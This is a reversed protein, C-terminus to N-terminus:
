ETKRKIPSVNVVEILQFVIAASLTRNRIAWCDTEDLYTLVGQRSKGNKFKIRSFKKNLRMLRGGLTVPSM